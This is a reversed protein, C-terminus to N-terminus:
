KIGNIKDELRELAKTTFGNYDKAANNSRPKYDPLAIQKEQCEPIVTCERISCEFLTTNLRETNDRILEEMRKSLKSRTNHRVLLIGLVSLKDNWHNSKIENIVDILDSLAIFSFPRAEIPIILENSSVLSNITTANIMSPNDIVIYDYNQQLPELAKKLAYIDDLQVSLEKIDSDAPIIDYYSCHKIAQVPECKNLLVDQITLEVNEIGSSFTSNYQSDLDILLVKRKRAGAFASFNIATSTKATGGKPIFVSIIAAM